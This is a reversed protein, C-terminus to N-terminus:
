EWIMFLSFINAHLVDTYSFIYVRKGFILVCFPKKFVFRLVLWQDFGYDVMSMLRPTMM